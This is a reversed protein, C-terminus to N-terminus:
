PMQPLRLISYPDVKDQHVICDDITIEDRLAASADLALAAFSKAVVTSLVPLTSRTM